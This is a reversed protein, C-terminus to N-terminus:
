SCNHYLDTFADDSPIAHIHSLDTGSATGDSTMAYLDNTRVTWINGTTGGATVGRALFWSVSGYNVLRTLAGGSTIREDIVNINTGDYAGDASHYVGNAQFQSYTHSWNINSTLDHIGFVAYFNNEWSVSVAVHDGPEPLFGTRLIGTDWNGNDIAEIFFNQGYANAWPNGVADSSDLSGVQLLGGPGQIGVWAAHTRLSPFCAAYSPRNVYYHSVVQTFPTARKTGVYGSYSPSYITASLTPNNTTCLSSVFTTPNSWEDNWNTVATTYDQETGYDVRRPRAPVVDRMLALEADTARAPVWGDPPLPYTTTLGMQTDTVLRYEFTRSGGGPTPLLKTVMQSQSSSPDCPPEAASQSETSTGTHQAAEAPATLLATSVLLALCSAAVRSKGM